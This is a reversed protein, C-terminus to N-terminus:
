CGRRAPARVDRFKAVKDVVARLSLGGASAVTTTPGPTSTVRVGPHRRLYRELEFRVIRTGRSSRRVLSPANSATVTVLRDQYAFVRVAEPIFAHNWYGAETQLNSFMTFSSETKLGVYPTLANVVLVAIGIALVPHGLRLGRVCAHGTPANAGHSRRPCGTKAM